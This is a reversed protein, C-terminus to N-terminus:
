GSVLLAKHRAQERVLLGHFMKRRLGVTEGEMQSRFQTINNVYASLLQEKLLM